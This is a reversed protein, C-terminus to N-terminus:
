NLFDLMYAILLPFYIANLEFHNLALLLSLAIVKCQVPRSKVILWGKQNKKYRFNLWSNSAIFKVNPLHDLQWFASHRHLAIALRKVLFLLSLLIALRKVLFLLFFFFFYYIDSFLKSEVNTVYKHVIALYLMHKKDIEKKVSIQSPLQVKQWRNLGSPLHSCFDQM